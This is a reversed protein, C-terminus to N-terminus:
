ANKHQPKFPPRAGKKMWEKVELLGIPKAHPGLSYYTKEVTSGWSYEGKELKVEDIVFEGLAVGKRLHYYISERTCPLFIQIYIRHIEYGYGSGIYHLIEVIRQRIDSGTPRGRTM